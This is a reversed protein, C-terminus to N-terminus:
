GNDQNKHHQLFYCWDPTSPTESSNFAIERGETFPSIRSGGRVEPHTCSYNHTVETHGCKWAARKHYQCNGCVRQRQSPIERFGPGENNDM